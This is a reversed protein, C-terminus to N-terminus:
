DKQLLTFASRSVRLLGEEQMRSLEASMASRNVSLFDALQQRDLPIRVSASRHATCSGIDRGSGSYGPYFIRPIGKVVPGSETIIILSQSLKIDRSLATRYSTPSM